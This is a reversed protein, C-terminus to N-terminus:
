TWPLDRRRELSAHDLYYIPKGLYMALEIEGKIGESQDWGAMQVIWLEDCSNLMLWDYEQWYDWGCPLNGHLAIPHTHAIPCFLYVGDRMLTAAALCALTFREERITPDPHNYPTALYILSPLHKIGQEPLQLVPDLPERMEFPENGLDISRSM